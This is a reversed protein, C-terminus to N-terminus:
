GWRRRSCIVPKRWGPMRSRCPWTNATTRYWCLGFLIDRSSEAGLLARLTPWGVGGGIADIVAFAPNPDKEFVARIETAHDPKAKLCLSLYEDGDGEPFINGCVSYLAFPDRQRDEDSVPAPAPVYILLGTTESNSTGLEGLLKLAAERSEISSETADVVHLGNANMGQCLERYRLDPDYVVLVGNRKVRPLMVDSQIFKQITM